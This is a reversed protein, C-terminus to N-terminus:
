RPQDPGPASSSMCTVIQAFAATVQLHGQRFLTAGVHKRQLVLHTEHLHHVSATLTLAICTTYTRWLIGHAPLRHPATAATSRSGRHPHFSLDHRNRTTARPKNLWASSPLSRGVERASEVTKFIVNGQASFLLFIALFLPRRFSHRHQHPHINDEKRFPWYLYM